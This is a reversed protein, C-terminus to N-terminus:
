QNAPCAQVHLYKQCEELTLTRTLRSKAMAVVENVPLVFVYV